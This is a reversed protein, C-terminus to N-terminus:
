DSKKEIGTQKEEATKQVRPKKQGFKLVLFFVAVMLVFMWVGPDTSTEDSTVVSPGTMYIRTFYTM